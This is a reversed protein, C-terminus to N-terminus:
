NGTYENEPLEVLDENDRFREITPGLYEEKAMRPHKKAWNLVSRIMPSIFNTHVGSIKSKLTLPIGMDKSLLTLQEDGWGELRIKPEWRHKVIYYCQEKDLFVISAADWRCARGGPINEVILLEGCYHLFLFFSKDL